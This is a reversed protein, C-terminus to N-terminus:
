NLPNREHGSRDHLKLNLNLYWSVRTGPVRYRTGYLVTGYPIIGYPRTSVRIHAHKYNTICYSVTRSHRVCEQSPFTGPAHPILHAASASKRPSARPGPAGKESGGHEQQAKGGRRLRPPPPPQCGHQCCVCTPRLGQPLAFRHPRRQLTAIPLATRSTRSGAVCCSSKALTDCNQLPNGSAAATSAESPTRMCRQAHTIAPPMKRAMRSLVPVITSEQPPHIFFFHQAPFAWTSHMGVLPNLDGRHVHCIWVVPRGCVIGSSCDQEDQYSTMGFATLPPSMAEM